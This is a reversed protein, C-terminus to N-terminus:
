RCYSEVGIEEGNHTIENKKKEEEDQQKREKWGKNEVWIRGLNKEEIEEERDHIIQMWNEDNQVRTTSM